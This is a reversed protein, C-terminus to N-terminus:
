LLAVARTVNDLYTPDFYGRQPELQSWAIPLWVVDFGSQQMLGADTADLPSPHMTPELLADDNFGRLLVARGLSDVIRSGDTSLWPLGPQASTRAPPPVTATLAPVPLFLWAAFAALMSGLLMRVRPGASLQRLLRRRAGGSTIRRIRAPATGAMTDRADHDVGVDSRPGTPASASASAAQRRARSARRVGSPGTLPRSPPPYGM